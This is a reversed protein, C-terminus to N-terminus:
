TGDGEPDVLALHLGLVADDALPQLWGVAVTQEDLGAAIMEEGVTAAAMQPPTLGPALSGYMLVAVLLVGAAVAAAPEWVEWVWASSARRPHLNSRVAHWMDPAPADPIRGLAATVSRLAELEARCEACGELHRAVDRSEAEGLAGLDYLNLKKRALRCTM